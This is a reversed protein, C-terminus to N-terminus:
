SSFILLHLTVLHNRLTKPMKLIQRKRERVVSLYKLLTVRMAENADRRNSEKQTQARYFLMM